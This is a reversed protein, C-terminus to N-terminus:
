LKILEKIKINQSNIVNIKIFGEFLPRSSTAGVVNAIFINLFSFFISKFM